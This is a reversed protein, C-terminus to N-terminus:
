TRRLLIKYVHFTSKKNFKNYVPFNYQKIYSKNLKLKIM